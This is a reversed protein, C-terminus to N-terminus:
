CRDRVQRGHVCCGMMNEVWLEGKSASLCTNEFTHDFAEQNGKLIEQWLDWGPLHLPWWVGRTPHQARQPTPELQKMAMWRWHGSMRGMPSLFWNKWYFILPAKWHFIFFISSNFDILHKHYFGLNRCLNLQHGGMRHKLGRAAHTGSHTKTVAPRALFQWCSFWEWFSWGCRDGPFCKIGRTKSM